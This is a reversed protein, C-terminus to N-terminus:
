NLGVGNEKEPTIFQMLETVLTAEFDDVWSRADWDPKEAEKKIGSLCFVIATNFVSGLIKYQPTKKSCDGFVSGFYHDFAKDDDDNLGEFFSKHKDPDKAIDLLDKEDRQSLERFSLFGQNIGAVWTMYMQNIKNAPANM